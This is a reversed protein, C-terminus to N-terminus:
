GLTGAIRIRNLYQSIEAASGLRGTSDCMFGGIWSWRRAGAFAFCYRDASGPKMRVLEASLQFGDLNVDEFAVAEEGNKSLYSWQKWKATGRSQLARSGAGRCFGNANTVEMTAVVATTDGDSWAAAQGAMDRVSFVWGANSGRGSALGSLSIDGTLGGVRYRDLKKYLGGGGGWHSGGQGCLVEIPRSRDFLKTADVIDTRAPTPTSPTEPQTRAATQTEPAKQSQTAKPPAALAALRELLRSQAPSLYGTGELSEDRQWAAIARRTAADPRGNSGADGYGLDRLAAQIDQWDGRDLGMDNETREAPPMAALRALREQELEYERERALAALRRTQDQDLYGNPDLGASVQWTEIARRTRPGPRGDARGADHGLTNLAEQIDRWDSRALGIQEELEEPSVLLARATTEKEPTPEQLAPTPEELLLATDIEGARGDPEAVKAGIDTATAMEHAITPRTVEPTATDARKFVLVPTTIEPRATKTATGAAANVSPESKERQPQSKKVPETEPLTMTSSALPTEAAANAQKVPPLEPLDIKATTTPPEVPEPAPSGGGLATIYVDVFPCFKSGPCFNAKFVEYGAVTNLQQATNWVEIELASDFRSTPEPATIVPAPQPAPAQVKPVFYFDSTLSSSDWPVQGDNTAVKVDARVRTLIQRIELGPKAMHELLATTFPSNRGRGDEAVEGPATAYAIFTGDSADLEALGEGVSTSRTGSSAASRLRRTLPNDRCADLFVLRTPVSAEMVALIRDLNILEIFADAQDQIQADVPVLYNRGDIQLGHGAYFILGVDANKLARGFKSIAGHMDGITLDTALIVEFDLEDLSRGIATADSVPNRLSGAHEYASNGILLAVRKAEAASTSWLLALM